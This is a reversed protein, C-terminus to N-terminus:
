SSNKIAVLSKVLGAFREYWIESEFFYMRMQEIGILDIENVQQEAQARTHTQVPGRNWRLSVAIRAKYPLWQIGPFLWHPEIPFYRYPTQIWHRDAMAHITDALQQRPAHGGVHEILSNSYVLDFRESRLSSPLHCADGQISRVDFDDSTLASMNVTTVAAPKVPAMKWSAPTGGLDLVRMQDIDPFETVLRAWRRARAPGSFSDTSGAETKLVIERLSRAM